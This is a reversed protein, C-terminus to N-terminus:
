IPCLIGPYMQHTLFIQQEISVSQVVAELTSQFPARLDRIRDELARMSIEDEQLTADWKHVVENLFRVRSYIWQLVAFLQGVASGEVSAFLEVCEDHKKQDRLRELKIKGEGVM